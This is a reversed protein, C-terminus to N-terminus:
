NAEPTRRSTENPTRSTLEKIITNKCANWGAVFDPNQSLWAEKLLHSGHRYEIPEDSEESCVAKITVKYCPSITKAHKEASELSLFLKNNVHHYKEGGDWELIIIWGSAQPKFRIAHRDITYNNNSM